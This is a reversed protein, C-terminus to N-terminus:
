CRRQLDATQCRPDLRHGMADTWTFASFIRGLPEWLDMYPFPEHPCRAPAPSRSRWMRSPPSRWCRRSIRASPEAPPPPAMPQALGLHDIVMQTNPNRAALQASRTWGHQHRPCEGGPWERRPQKRACPQHRPRNSRNLLKGSLPLQRRRPGEQVELRRHERSHRSRESRGAQRPLLPRRAESRVELVYSPDFRYMTYPSVLVAGNVGVADMAAVM